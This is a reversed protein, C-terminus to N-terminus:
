PNAPSPLPPAPFLSYSPTRSKKRHISRPPLEPKIAKNILPAAEVESTSKARDHPIAGIFKNSETSGNSDPRSMIQTELERALSKTQRHHSSHSSNARVLDSQESLMLDSSSFDRSSALSHVLEPVSTTSVSSRHKRVISAARSLILSEQSNYKSIPSFSSRPSVPQDVAQFGGQSYFSFHRDSEGDAALYDEYLADPSIHKTLAGSLVSSSVPQFLNGNKQSDADGEYGVSSPTIALNSSPASLSPSPELDPTPLASMSLYGLNRSSSPAQASSAISNPTTVTVATGGKRSEDFSSRAWDFDSNSEAAHEYCYDIDDDWSEYITEHITTQQISSQRRLTTQTGQHDSPTVSRDVYYQPLTPSGLAESFKRSLEKAGNVSLHKPAVRTKPSVQDELVAPVDSQQSQPTDHWHTAENEEPVDELDSTPSGLTSMTRADMSDIAPGTTIAHCNSHFSCEANPSTPASADVSDDDAFYVLEPNPQQYDLGLIEDIVRPSPEPIEPSSALRPSAARPPSAPADGRPHRPVPRSFNEFIRSERLPRYELQRPSTSRAGPSRPPSGPLPGITDHEAVPHALNESSLSRGHIDEARIGKLNSVPKQSARIASFETVLDNERTKGLSQFQAPSTHTLHHFDFPDSILRKRQEHADSTRSKRRGFDFRSKERDMDEEEEPTGVINVKSGQRRLIRSGRSFLSKSVSEHRDHRPVAPPIPRDEHPSPVPAHENSAMSSPSRRSSTLSPTSTTTNSRARGSFVSLRKPSQTHAASRSRAHISHDPTDSNSAGTLPRDLDQGMPRTASVSFHPSSPM